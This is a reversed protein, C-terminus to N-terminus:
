HLSGALRELEHKAEVFGGEASKKLWFLARRRELPDTSEHMLFWINYQAVPEGNEAAVIRWFEADKASSNIGSSYHLSLRLAAQGNGDAAIEKLESLRDASIAFGEDVASAQNDQTSACAAITLVGILSAITAAKINLSNAPFVSM